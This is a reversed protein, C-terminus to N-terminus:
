KWKKGYLYEGPNKEWILHVLHYFLIIIMLSQLSEVVPKLVHLPLLTAICVADSEAKRAKGGHPL